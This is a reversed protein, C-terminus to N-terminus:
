NERFGKRMKRKTERRPKRLFGYHKPRRKRLRPEFRDPRDAVRHTAIADLVQQYVDMRSAASAHEGQLAIVPQFAELTQIAGKFSISRPEIGQKTAAQAMITRILKYALIHTWLEKRVLEPTKCRLVDARRRRAGGRGARRGRAAAAGAARLWRAQRACGGRRGRAAGAARLRRAQRAAARRSASFSTADIHDGLTVEVL